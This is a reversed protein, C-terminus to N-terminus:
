SPTDKDPKIKHHTTQPSGIKHNPGAPETSKNNPNLARGGLNGIWVDTQISFISNAFKAKFGNNMYKAVM